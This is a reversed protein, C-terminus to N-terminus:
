LYCSNRNGSLLFLQEFPCLCHPFKDCMGVLSYTSHSHIAIIYYSSLYSKNKNRVKQKEKENNAQSNRQNREHCCLWCYIRCGGENSTHLLHCIFCGGGKKLSHLPDKMRVPDLAYGGLGTTNPPTQQICVPKSEPDTM